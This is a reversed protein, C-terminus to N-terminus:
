WDLYSTLSSSISFGHYPLFLCTKYLIFRLVFSNLIIVPRELGSIAWCLSHVTFFSIFLLNVFVCAHNSHIISAFYSLMCCVACWEYVATIQITFIICPLLHNFCRPSITYVTGPRTVIVAKKITPSPSTEPPLPHTQARRRKTTQPPPSIASFSFLSYYVVVCYVSCTYYIDVICVFIPKSTVQHVSSKISSNLHTWIELSKM